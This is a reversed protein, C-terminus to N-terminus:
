GTITEKCHYSLQVGCLPRLICSLLIKSSFQEGKRSELVDIATYFCSQHTHACVLRAEICYCIRLTQKIGICRIAIHEILLDSKTGLCAHLTLETGRLALKGILLCIEHLIRSAIMRVGSYM